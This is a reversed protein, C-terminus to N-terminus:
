KLGERYSKLTRNVMSRTLGTIEVIRKTKYGHQYLAIVSAKDTSDTLGLLTIIDETKATVVISNERSIEVESKLGELTDSLKKAQSVQKSLANVTPSRKFGTQNWTGNNNMVEREPHDKVSQLTEKVLGYRKNKVSNLWEEDKCLLEAACQLAEEHSGGNDLIHNLTKVGLELTPYVVLGNKIDEKVKKSHLKADQKSEFYLFSEYDGRTLIDDEYLKRVESRRMLSLEYNTFVKM